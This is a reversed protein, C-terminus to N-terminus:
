GRHHHGAMGSEVLRRFYSPNMRPMGIAKEVGSTSIFFPNSSSATAAM